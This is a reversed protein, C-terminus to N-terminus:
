WEVHGDKDIFVGSQGERTLATTVIIKAGDAPDMTGTYNNLNTANFGPCISVVRIKSGKAEEQIAWQLTLSNLASKSSSYAPYIPPPPRKTYSMLSGLTSSINLIAGGNAILPRLAETIAVTGFVNVSYTSEFTGGVIAANNVLVDLSSIGKQKLYDAIFAHAAKISAADSIDLQVPVVTSSAHVDSAFKALEEEAAALKRSGMFAIVDPTQALQHVTHRGLGQNSGTVLISRVM